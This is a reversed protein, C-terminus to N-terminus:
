HNKYTNNAVWGLELTGLQRWSLELWGNGTEAIPSLASIKPRGVPAHFICSYTTSCTCWHVVYGSFILVHLSSKTPPIMGLHCEKLMNSSNEPQHSLNLKLFPRDDNEGCCIAMQPYGDNESPLSFWQVDQSFGVNARQMSSVRQDVSWASEKSVGSPCNRPSM